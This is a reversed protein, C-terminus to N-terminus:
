FPFAEVLPRGKKEEHWPLGVHPLNLFEPDLVLQFVTQSFPFARLLRELIVEYKPGRKGLFFHSTIESCSKITRLQHSAHHGKIEQGM